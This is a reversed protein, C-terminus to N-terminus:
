ASDKSISWGGDVVLTAGTVYSAAPSALFAIASAVEEPTGMRKLATANVSRDRDIDPVGDWIPTLIPGPLICNARVPAYDVAVQRTLGTLAAKTAAYAPYGPLGFNAHVSSMIVLAGSREILLPLLAQLGLYAGTLNVDLQTHWETADLELLSAKIQRAANSVFVDLGGLDTCARRIDEWGEPAAVDALVAVAREGLRAAINVIRNSVDVLVVRAGLAVFHEATAAGIGSGAGTVVAVRGAWDSHECSM